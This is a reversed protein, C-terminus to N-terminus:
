DEHKPNNMKWRNLNFNGLMFNFQIQKELENRPNDWWEDCVNKLDAWSLKYRKRANQIVWHAKSIIPTEGREEARSMFEAVLKKEFAKEKPDPRFRNATNNLVNGDEDTLVISIDESDNSTNITDTTDEGDGRLSTTQSNPTNTNQPSSVLTGDKEESFTPKNYKINSYLPVENKGDGGRMEATGKNVVYKTIYIKRSNNEELIVAIHGKEKLDHIWRQITSIDVDYIDAFYQNGAWCYGEKNSLATIEAYLIKASSSLDKDYRVDATLIAYYGPNEM